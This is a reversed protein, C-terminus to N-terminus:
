LKSNSYMYKVSKKYSLLLQESEGPVYVMLCRCRLFLVSFVFRRWVACGFTFRLLSSSLASLCNFFADWATRSPVHVTYIFCIQYEWLLITTQISNAIGFAGIRYMYQKLNLISGKIWLHYMDTECQSLVQLFRLYLLYEAPSM